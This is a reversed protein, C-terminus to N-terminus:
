DRDLQKVLRLKIKNPLLNLLRLVSTLLWPFNIAFKRSLLGKAIHSAAKETSMIQPMAFNNKATLQTAVFGPNIVKIDCRGLLEVALSEAFNILAAKTASYPQGGPLGVFGACSACLAIQGGNALVPLASQACYIAGTLNVNVISATQELDINAVKGPQYIAAMFIVRDIQQINQGIFKIASKVQALNAVDMPAVLHKDGPLDLQLDQLQEQRRASLILNAGQAALEYALARGIGSSSGIIWINQNNFNSLNLTM